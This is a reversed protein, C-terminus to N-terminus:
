IHILSLGINVVARIPKGTSGLWTGGRVQDAVKAMKALVARVDPLVDAGDVMVPQNARLATHMVSRNETINIRDGAFMADRRESFGASEALALLASITSETAIHKSFDVTLDAVTLTMREARGPDDQFLQRLHTGQIEQQHATLAQWQSTNQLAM